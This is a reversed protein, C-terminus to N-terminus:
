FVALSESVGQKRLNQVAAYSPLLENWSFKKLFSFTNYSPSLRVTHVVNSKLPALSKWTNKNMINNSALFFIVKTPNQKTQFSNRIIYKWLDMFNILNMSITKSRLNKSKTQKNSYLFYKKLIYFLWCLM